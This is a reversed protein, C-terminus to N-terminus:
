AVVTPAAGAPNVGLLRLARAVVRSFVPAAVGGGGRLVGSPEDVVVVVVIRPDVAPAFGAFLAVHLDDDYEGNAAVKRATGTKGAVRYGAVRAARATGQPTVVHEMMRWVDRVDREDFVREEPARHQGLFVTPPRRVGGAALTLYTQALQMPTVTLGYGFALTARGIRKNLDVPTFVGLTEGPLGTGPPTGLGARSMVDFIAHPPLDLAVQTVGVQSSKALVQTLTLSGYNNPDEILKRGISTYGPATDLVTDPTYRGSELAALVSLPKVTSGPEFTDTVARNRAAPGGRDVPNNPNYSPQNAMALVEGTAVDLMVLSAARAGHRRVASQLERHAFFQLRLDLSLRVDQGFQPAELYALDRITVGRGDRLVRKKGPAGKLHEDLVLEVGEQGSDDINTIGVVHATTDAAPYFRRYERAFSVGAVDLAQVRAVTAPDAHRKLYAFRKDRSRELVKKLRAAPVQLAEALKPVAAAAIPTKAPDTWVYFAPTSVALPEGHRDFIIGRHVPISVTRVSRRDGQDALFDRETIGLYAIRGFLAIVAALFLSVLLHHRWVKM